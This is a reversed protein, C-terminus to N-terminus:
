SSDSMVTHGQMIMDDGKYQKQIMSGPHVVPDVEVLLDVVRPFCISTDDM